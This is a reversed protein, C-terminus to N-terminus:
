NPHCKLMNKHIQKLKMPFIPRQPLQILEGQGPDRGVSRPLSRQSLLKREKRKVKIKPLPLNSNRWGKGLCMM